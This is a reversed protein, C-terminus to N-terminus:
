RGSITITRTNMGVDVPTRATEERMYTGVMGFGQAYAQRVMGVVRSDAKVIAFAMFSLIAVLCARSRFFREVRQHITHDNQKNKIKM